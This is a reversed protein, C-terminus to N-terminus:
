NKIKLLKMLEKPYNNIIMDNTLGIEKMIKKLGSDDGMEWINHADSNVIIKKKYKRAVNVMKKINEITDPKLKRETIYHLNIELLVNHECAAQSIKKLDFKFDEMKHLHSIINIKGSKICNIMAETNNKFNRNKYSTEKHFGAIVYDLKNEIIKDAIDIKGKKNLINAEIGRLIKIGNITRPLRDLCNFYIESIPSNGMLPGHEAFGIIKMGNLKAQNIYENVTSHAHGSAITHLHLDIKLM